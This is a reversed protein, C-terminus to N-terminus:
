GTIGLILRVTEKPADWQPFHGCREFWHLHADPFLKLARKAQKPLCVRDKQGWGIVLPKKISGPPLGQQKEGYALQHLLKDFSASAIYSEIEDLTLQPSLKWPRASFQAFALTRSMVNAAIKPALKKFTRVMRISFLVTSYFYAREWGKWFGVPDLAIVTGVVEGRRALELALRAGLSSGAVDIGNLDHHRIFDTVADALTNITVETNLPPTDGFGPLDIAYVERETTLMKLVPTWSRWSGGLGHILLLPKGAGARIYNITEAIM